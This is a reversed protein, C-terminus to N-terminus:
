PPIRKGRGGGTCDDIWRRFQEVLVALVQPQDSSMGKLGYIMNRVQNGDVHGDADHGDDHRDDDDDYTTRAREDDRRWLTLQHHLFPHISYHAIHTDGSIYHIFLHRLMIIRKMGILYDFLRTTPVNSIIDSVYLTYHHWCNTYNYDNHNHHYHHHHHHHHHHHNTLNNFVNYQTM